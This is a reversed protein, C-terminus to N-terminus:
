FKLHEIYEVSPLLRRHRQVCFIRVTEEEPFYRYVLRYGAKNLERYAEYGQQQVRPCSEPFLYLKELGDLIAEGTRSPIEEMQALALESWFLRVRM